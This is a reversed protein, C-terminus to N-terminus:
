ELGLLKYNVKINTKKKLSELWDSIAKKQKEKLIILRVENYSSSLDKNNLKDKNANYFDNIEKDSVKISMFLEKTKKDLSMKLLCQEWFDQVDELFEQNKDLGIKEAEKLILKRNIFNELFAKREQSTAEKEFSLRNFANDFESKTIKINDLIIAPEEKAKEACGFAILTICVFMMIKAKRM